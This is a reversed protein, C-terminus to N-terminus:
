NSLSPRKEQHVELTGKTMGESLDIATQIRDVAEIEADQIDEPTPGRRKPYGTWMRTYESDEELGFRLIEDTGPVRLGSVLIQPAGIPPLSRIAVLAPSPSWVLERGVYDVATIRVRDYADRQMVKPAYVIPILGISELLEICRRM